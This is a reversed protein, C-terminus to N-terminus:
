PLNDTGFRISDDQKSRNNVMVFKKKNYMFINDKHFKPAQSGNKMTNM